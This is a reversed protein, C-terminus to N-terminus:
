ELTNLFYSFNGSPSRYTILVCINSSSYHLKVAYIEIDLDTSFENFDFSTYQLTEHVFISVCGNKQSKIGFCAGLNCFDINVYSIETSSLHHETLCILHPIKSLWQNVFEYIETNIRRNNKHYITWSSNKYDNNTTSQKM